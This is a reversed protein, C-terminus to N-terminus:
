PNPSMYTESSSGFTDHILSICSIPPLLTMITPVIIRMAKFRSDESDTYSSIESSITSTEKQKNASSLGGTTANDGSEFTRANDRSGSATTHVSSPMEFPLTAINSDVAHWARDKCSHGLKLLGYPMTRLGQLKSGEPIDQGSLVSEM